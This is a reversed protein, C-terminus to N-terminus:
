IHKTLSNSRPFITNKSTPKPRKFNSSTAQKFIFQFIISCKSLCPFHSGLSVRMPWSNTGSLTRAVGDCLSPAWRNPLEGPAHARPIHDLLDFCSPLLAAVCTSSRHTETARIDMTSSHHTDLRSAGLHLLSVPRSGLPPCNPQIAVTCNVHLSLICRRYRCVTYRLNLYSTQLVYM